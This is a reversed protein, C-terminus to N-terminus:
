KNIQQRVMWRHNFQVTASNETFNKWIPSISLYEEPVIRRRDDSGPYHGMWPFENYVMGADLGAV